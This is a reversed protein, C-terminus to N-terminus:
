RIDKGEAGSRQTSDQGRHKAKEWAGTLMNLTSNMVEAGPKSGTQNETETLPMRKM